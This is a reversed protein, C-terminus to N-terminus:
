NVLPISHKTFLYESNNSIFSCLPTKDLLDELDYVVTESSEPNIVMLGKEHINVVKTKEGLCLIRNNERKFVLLKIKLVFFCEGYEDHNLFIYSKKKYSYGRYTAEEAFINGERLLESKRLVNTWLNPLDSCRDIYKEVLLENGFRDNRTAPLAQFYQHQEACFKTVNKYNLTSRLAKKFFGHKRECFLTCFSMLKIYRPYHVTFHHKPRLPM